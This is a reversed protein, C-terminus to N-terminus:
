RLAQDDDYLIGERWIRAAAEATTRRRKSEERAEDVAKKKANEQAKLYTATDTPIAYQLKQNKEDLLMEVNGDEDVTSLEWFIGHTDGTKRSSVLRVNKPNTETAGISASLKKAADVAENISGFVPWKQGSAAAALIAEAESLKKGKWITPINTPKGDNLADTTVTATLRTSFSGDANQVAPYGDWTKAGVAAEVDARIVKPDIGPFVLEPAYKLIEPEGNVTSYGYTGRIDKWALDRARNIDGNTHDFYTRVLAGFEDKMSQSAAPAGRPGFSQDFADDSDMASQLKDGNDASYRQKTWTSQLADKRAKPIDFTNARAIEVAKKPDVGARVLSDIQEANAKLEPDDFFAYAAPAADAFRAMANAAPVALDPEGSLITKRAWSMAQPPLINTRNAIAAANNVWEDSGPEVRALRTADGFWKDVAKVVKENRPDLRVGNVIADQINGIEAADAAGKQRATDISQLVNTYQEPTYAGQHYLAGARAESDPAPNGTNIARELTNVQEAYQQRRESHLLGLGERVASRVQRQDADSLGSDGLKQLAMEGIRSDKTYASIISDTQAQAHEKSVNAEAVKLMQARKDPAINQAPTNEPNTLMEVQQTAPLMDLTGEGYSEVWRERLDTAQEPTIYQSKLAGDISDRVGRVFQERTKPDKAELAAVRSTQLTEELSSRAWQGEKVRAQGRIVDAGRAIDEQSNQEFLARSRGGRIMNSADERATKMAENYRNEQTAFDPDDEFKNRVAVDATLLAIRARGYNYQDDHESLSQLDQGISASARLNGQALVDGSDDEVIPKRGSAIVREGLATVDPLKSM